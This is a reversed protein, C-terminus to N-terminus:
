EPYIDIIELTEIAAGTYVDGQTFTEVILEFTDREAKAASLRKILRNFRAQSLEEGEEPAQAVVTFAYAPLGERWSRVAPSFGISEVARMLAERTGALRKTPLAAAVISRKEQDHADSKWEDVGRDNALYPLFEAPTKQPDLLMPFPAEIEGLLDLFAREFARELRSSNEPLLSYSM